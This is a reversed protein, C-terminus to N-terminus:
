LSRRIIFNFVLPKNGARRFLSETEQDPPKKWHISNGPGGNETLKECTNEKRRGIGTRTKSFAAMLIKSFRLINVARNGCLRNAGSTANHAM